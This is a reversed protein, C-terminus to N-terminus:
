TILAKSLIAGQLVFGYGHIVFRIALDGNRVALVAFFGNMLFLVIKLGANLGKTAFLTFGTNLLVVVFIVAYIIFFV